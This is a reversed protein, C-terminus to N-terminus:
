GVPPVPESTQVVPQQITQTVQTTTGLIGNEILLSKIDRRGKIYSVIIIGITFIAAIGTLADKILGIVPDVVDTTIVGTALLGVGITGGITAAFESTRAGASLPNTQSAM